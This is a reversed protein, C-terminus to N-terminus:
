RWSWLPMRSTPMWFHLRRHGATSLSKHYAHTLKNELLWAPASCHVYVVQPAKTYFCPSPLPVLEPCDESPFDCDDKCLETVVTDEIFFDFSCDCFDPVCVADSFNVCKKGACPDEECLVDAIMM